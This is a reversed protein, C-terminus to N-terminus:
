KKIEPGLASARVPEICDFRKSKNLIEDFSEIIKDNQSERFHKMVQRCLSHNEYNKTYIQIFSYRAHKM